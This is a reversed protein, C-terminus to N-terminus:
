FILFWKILIQILLASFVLFPGFPIYDGSKLRQQYRLLLAVLIGSLSSVLILAILAIPGIWAGIAGVLKLDGDGIGIQGKILQYARSVLWLSCYGLVAGWLSLNLPLNAVGWASAILGAWLLPQTIADPLLQTQWDIFALCLLASGFVAFVLSSSSLGHQLYCISWWIACLLEIAFLSKGIPKKCTACVGKLLAYSLLPIKHHAPLEKKCQLCHSPPYALNPANISSAAPEDHVASTSLPPITETQSLETQAQSEDGYMRMPLRTIVVGAFSGAVASLAFALLAQFWSWHGTLPM